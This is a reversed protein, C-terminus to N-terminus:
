GPAVLIWGAIRAIVSPEIGLYGHPSLAQCPDSRLDHSEVLIVGRRSARAMSQSLAQADGPPSARCTDGTNAVVLAPVAIAAPDSNAVTEGARTPRTVSSTLVVGAVRGALHAAGNAAGISGMSTGVLWVPVNSRARAFDVAVSLAAAYEPRSRRGMLSFGDPSALVVANIGYGAWLGRSRVLFNRNRTFGTPDIQVIGEGGALLVVTARPQRAPYFAARETGGTALPLDEVVAQARAVLPAAVLVLAVLAAGACARVGM